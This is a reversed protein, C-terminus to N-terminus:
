GNVADTFEEISEHALIVMQIAAIKGSTGPLEAYWKRDLGMRVQGVFQDGRHVRYLERNIKKVEYNDPDRM